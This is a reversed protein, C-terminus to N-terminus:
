LLVALGEIEWNYVNIRKGQGLPLYFVLWWLNTQQLRIVTYRVTGKGDIHM